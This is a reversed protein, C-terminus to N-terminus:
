MLVKFIFNSRKSDCHFSLFEICKEVRSFGYCKITLLVDIKYQFLLFFKVGPKLVLFLPKLKLRKEYRNEIPIASAGPSRGVFHRNETHM